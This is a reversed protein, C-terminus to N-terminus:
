NVEKQKNLKKFNLNITKKLFLSFVYFAYMVGMLILMLVIFGGQIILGLNPVIMLGIAFDNVTHLFIAAHLGFKYYAYGFIIGAIGAQFIKWVAWSGFQYHVYGFFFSSIILFIFDIVKLKKWRGTLYLFPNELTRKKKNEEKVKTKDERKSKSSRLLKVVLYYVGHIFFLPVGMILFRFSIEEFLGAWYLSSLQIYLFDSLSYSSFSASPAFLQLFYIFVMALGLNLAALNMVPIIDSKKMHSLLHEFRRNRKKIFGKPTYYDDEENLFVISDIEQDLTTDSNVKEKQKPTEKEIKQIQKQDEIEEVEHKEIENVQETEKKQMPLYYLLVMVLILLICLLSQILKWNLFKTYDLNVYTFFEQHFGTENNFSFSFNPYAIILKIDSDYNAPISPYIILVLLNALFIFFLVICLGYSWYRTITKVMSQEILSLEKSPYKQYNFSKFVKSFFQEIQNYLLTGILTSFFAIQVTENFILTSYYVKLNIQKILFVVLSILFIPIYIIIFMKIIYHLINDGKDQNNKVFKRRVYWGYLLFILFIVLYSIFDIWFLFSPTAAGKVYSSWNVVFLSYVVRLASFVFIGVIVFIFDSKTRINM